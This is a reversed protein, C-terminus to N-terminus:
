TDSINKAENKFNNVKRLLFGVYTGNVLVLILYGPNVYLAAYLQYLVIILWILAFVTITIISKTIYILVASVLLIFGALPAFFFNLLGFFVLSVTLSNVWKLYKYNLDTYPDYDEPDPVNNTLDDLGTGCEPCFKGDVETGCEKCYIFSV